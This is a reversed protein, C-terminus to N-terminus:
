QAETLESGVHCAPSWIGSNTRARLRFIYRGPALDAFETYLATGM